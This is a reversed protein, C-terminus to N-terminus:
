LEEGPGIKKKKQVMGKLLKVIDIMLLVFLSFVAFSLVPIITFISRDVYLTLNNSIATNNITSNNATIIYKNSALGYGMIIFTVIILGIRIYNSNIKTAIYAIIGAMGVFFIALAIEWAM